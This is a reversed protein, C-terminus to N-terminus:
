LVASVSGDMIAGDLGFVTSDARKHYRNEIRIQKMAFGIWCHFSIFIARITETVSEDSVCAKCNAFLFRSRERYCICLGFVSAAEKGNTFLCNKQTMSSILLKM